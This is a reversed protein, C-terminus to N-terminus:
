QSQADNYCAMIIAQLLIEIQIITILGNTQGLWNVQFDM